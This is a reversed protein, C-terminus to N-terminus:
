DTGRWVQGMDGGGILATVDYHALRTGPSLTMTAPSRGLIGLRLHWGGSRGCSDGRHSLVLPWCRLRTLQTLRACGRSPIASSGVLATVNYHGLRSGVTLSM